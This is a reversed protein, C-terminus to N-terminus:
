SGVTVVPNSACTPLDVLCATGGDPVTGGPLSGSGVVPLYSTDVGPLNGTDPTPSGNGVTGADPANVNARANATVGQDGGVNANANASIAQGNSAGPDGVKANANVTAADGV